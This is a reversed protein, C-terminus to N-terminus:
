NLSEAIKIIEDPTSKGSIRYSLYSDNWLLSVFNNKEREMIIAPINNVLAESVVTDDTDYGHGKASDINNKQTILIFNKEKDSLIQKVIVIGNEMDRLEISDLKYGDPIYEPSKIQYPCQKQIEEFKLPNSDSDKETYKSQIVGTSNDSILKDFSNWVKEGVAKVSDPAIFSVLGLGFIMVVFISVKLWSPSLFKEKNLDNKINKWMKDMDPEPARNIRNNIIDSLMQDIKKDPIRDM